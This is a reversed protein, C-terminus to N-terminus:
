SFFITCFFLTRYPLTSKVKVHAEEYLKIYDPNREYEKSPATQSEVKLIAGTRVNLYGFEMHIPPCLQTILKKRQNQFEPTKKKGVEQQKAKILRPWFQKAIHWFADAASASVKHDLQTLYWKRTLADLTSQYDDVVEADDDDSPDKFPM